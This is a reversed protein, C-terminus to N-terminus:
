QYLKTMASSFNVLYFLDLFGQKDWPESFPAKKNYMFAM